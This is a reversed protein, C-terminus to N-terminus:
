RGAPDVKLSDLVRWAEDQAGKPAAPGFAVRVYFHRGQDTFGFFRESMRTKKSVCDVAESPSGLTPGFHAPRRPFEGGGYGKVHRREELEVFAGRQGLDELASVPAQACQHARYRLPYNAAAFVQKPDPGLNPTLSARTARWGPPLEVALGHGAQTARRTPPKEDNCGAILLIAAVACACTRLECMTRPSCILSQLMSSRFTVKQRIQSAWQPM